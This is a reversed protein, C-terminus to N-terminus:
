IEVLIGIKELKKESNALMKKPQISFLELKSNPKSKNSHM